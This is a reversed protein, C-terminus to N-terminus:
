SFIELQPSTPSSTVLGNRFQSRVDDGVFAHIKQRIAFPFLISLSFPGSIMLM